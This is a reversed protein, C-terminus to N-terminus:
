RAALAAQRRPRVRPRPPAAFVLRPVLVAASGVASCVAALRVPVGARRALEATVVLVAIGTVVVHVGGPWPERACPEPVPTLVLLANACESPEEVGSPASPAPETRSEEM